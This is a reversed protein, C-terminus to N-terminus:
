AVSPSLIEIDTVLLADVMNSAGDRQYVILIRGVPPVILFEPHRVPIQRGDALHLNFPQFPQASCATKIQAITM